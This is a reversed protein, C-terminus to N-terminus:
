FSVSQRKEIARFRLSTYTILILFGSFLAFGYFPLLLIMLGLFVLMPVVLRPLEVRSLRLILMIDLLDRFECRMNYRYLASSFLVTVLLVTLWLVVNALAGLGVLAMLWTMLVGLLIPLLWYGVWVVTFRLGDLFMEAWDDWDPLVPQGTKRVARSVRFLYGFAFVNVVPIFTLLGGILLNLWFGPVKTLREFVEEFIPTEKM